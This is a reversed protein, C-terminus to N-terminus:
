LAKMTNTVNSQGDIWLDNTYNNKFYFLYAASDRIDMHLSRGQLTAIAASNKKAVTAVSDLTYRWNTELEKVTYSGSDIKSITQSAKLSGAPITLIAHYTVDIGPNSDTDGSIEFVFKQETDSVTDIAKEIVFDLMSNNISYLTTKGGDTTTSSIESVYGKVYAEKVSYTLEVSGDDTYKPLDFFTYTWGNSVDLSATKTVYDVGGNSGIAKIEVSKPRTPDEALSNQWTKTVMITQTHTDYHLGTNKAENLGASLAATNMVVYKKGSINSINAIPHTTVTAYNYPLQVRITYSSGNDLGDFYYFGSLDTKTTSILTPNGGTSWLEVTVGAIPYDGNLMSFTTTASYSAQDMDYYVLGKLQSEDASSVDELIFEQLSIKTNTADGTTYTWVDVAAYDGGKTSAEGSNAATFKCAGNVSSVGSTAVEGGSIMYSNDYYVVTRAREEEQASQWLYDTGDSNKPTNVLRVNIGKPASEIDLMPFHYEGAKVQIEIEISGTENGYIGSPVVYGNGDKGDWYIRNEGQVCSSSLYLTNAARGPAYNEKFKIVIQFSSANTVNFKFWGGQGVFGYSERYGEFVFNTIKEPVHPTAKISSPLDDSPMEFFVRYTQDLNTDPNQPSHFVAPITDGSALKIQLQSMINDNTLNRASRYLSSNNKQNVLGRNNAFFVFGYPDLGNLDTKYIYGDNTLVYFTSFLGNSSNYYNAGMNLCLYNCFVRGTVISSSATTIDKVVTLDWAFITGGSTPITPWSASILRSAPNEVGGDPSYYDFEWVGAETPGVTIIIPTYGAANRVGGADSYKPGAQEMARTGIFGAGNNIVNLYGTTGDPKRFCIDRAGGAGAVCTSSYTSSGIMLTEGANVYVKITQRRSIGATTSGYWELFPRYAGAATSQTITRSGTALTSFPMTLLFTFALVSAICKIFNSKRMLM